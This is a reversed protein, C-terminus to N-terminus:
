QPAFSGTLTITFPINSAQAYDEIPLNANTIFPLASLEANFSRLNERTNAKGSVQMTGPAGKAPASFVFSTLTVGPRPVALISKISNSATPAATLSSIATAQQSLSSLESNLQAEQATVGTSNLRALTQAQALVEQQEYLYTPLLFVGNLVVVIVLLAIAVVAVRMVYERRM